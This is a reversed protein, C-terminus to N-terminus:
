ITNSRKKIQGAHLLDSDFLFVTGAKGDINLIRSWVFPYSKNSGPCISLLDGNYKYLIMTYIPYKTNHLYKSSTVDRHFTSLATNNIKYIYDIFIYDNPLKDLVDKKLEECPKDITNISYLPDYLICFGDNDITRINKSITFNEYDETNDDILIYIIILIILNILNNKINYNM